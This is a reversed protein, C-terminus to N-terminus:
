VDSRWETHFAHHERLWHTDQEHRMGPEGMVLQLGHIIGRARRTTSRHYRFAPPNLRVEEAEDGPGLHTPCGTSVSMWASAPRRPEFSHGLWPLSMDDQYDPEAAVLIGLLSLRTTRVLLGRGLLALSCLYWAHPTV